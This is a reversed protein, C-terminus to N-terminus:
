KRKKGPTKSPQGYRAMLASQAGVGDLQHAPPAYSGDPRLQWAGQEDLLYATLCEDIIRQRLQPDTVPWALEVRRLMNRNMWDASSLFLDEQEGAGFYFVRTHELFRGIISRVRINDTAGPVQARLMCAGRVILDIRAGQQGARVLARMLADDTLANMKLVIRAYQGAQAAQGVQAIKELMRQQLHFPALMLRRLRPPRNQSALHNFVGDMDATIDENATLMGLDTYLAHFNETMYGGFYAPDDSNVTVKTGTATLRVWRVGADDVVSLATPSNTWVGDPIGDVNTDTAFDSNNQLNPGGGRPQVVYGGTQLLREMDTVVAAGLAANGEPSPHLGDLVALGAKWGSPSTRGCSM